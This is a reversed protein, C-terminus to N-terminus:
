SVRVEKAAVVQLAPQKVTEKEPAKTFFTLVAAFILLAASIMYATTYSGTADAVKGAL